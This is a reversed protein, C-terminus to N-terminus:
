RTNQLYYGIFLGNLSCEICMLINIVNAELVVFSMTYLPMNEVVKDSPSKVM